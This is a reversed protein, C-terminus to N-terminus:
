SDMSLHLHTPPALPSKPSDLRIMLSPIHQESSQAVRFRAIGRFHTHLITCVGILASGLRHTPKARFSPKWETARTHNQTHVPLRCKVILWPHDVSNCFIAPRGAFCSRTLAQFLM